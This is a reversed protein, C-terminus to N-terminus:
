TCSRWSSDKPFVSASRCSCRPHVNMALSLLSSRRLAMRLTWFRRRKKLGKSCSTRGCAWSEWSEGASLGSVGMPSSCSGEWSFSGASQSCCIWGLMMVASALKAMQPIDLFLIALVIVAGTLGICLYPTRFRPHLSAFVPPLLDNRSMAFPFRSSALIGSNAMSTMTLVGLVAAVIGLAPGFAQKGLTYIPHQDNSLEDLPLAGVLVFAVLAYLLGVVFLSLLMGAPLNKGPNKVEEAVAAVNTVGAYSVFVLATAGLFGSAGGTFFPEFRQSSFSPLSGAVILLLGVLSIGVVVIQVQGVKKAGLVNLVLILGLLCLATTQLDVQWIAGLYAGFGMLAFASKLLLSAWLGLGAICGALPGFARDVYVYTGGSEPMATALESKSLAAPLVTLGALLYALWASPGTQAVALGPLVFIGSGIMASTSIAFVAWLGLSRELTKM